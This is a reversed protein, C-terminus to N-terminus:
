IHLPFSYKFFYFSRMIKSFNSQESYEKELLM